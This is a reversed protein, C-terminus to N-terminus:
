RSNLLQLAGRARSALAQLDEFYRGHTRRVDQETAAELIVVEDDIGRESLELELTLRQQEANQRDSDVFSELKVIRGRERNYEILFIM